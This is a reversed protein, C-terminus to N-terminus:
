DNDIVEANDLIDKVELELPVGKLYGKKQWEKLFAWYLLSDDGYVEQHAKILDFEFQRLLYLPKPEKYPQLLWKAFDWEDDQNYMAMVDHEFMMDVITRSDVMRYGTFGKYYHELNTEKQKDQLVDVIDVTSEELGIIHDLLDDIIDFSCHNSEFYPCQLCNEKKCVCSMAGDTSEKRAEILQEIYEEKTM